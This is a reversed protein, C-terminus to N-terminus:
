RPILGGCAILVDIKGTASKGLSECAKPCLLVRTPDADNDYYWDKDGACKAAGRVRPLPEPTGGAPTYRVLVKDADIRVNEARPITYECGISAVVTSALNTLVPSWNDRCISDLVGGTLAVLRQHQVGPKM